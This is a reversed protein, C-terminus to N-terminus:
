RGETREELLADVVNAKVRVARAAIEAISGKGLRLVGRAELERLWARDGGAHAQPGAPELRAIIEDRDRVLISEGRRVKRLYESLRNKLEAINVAIM